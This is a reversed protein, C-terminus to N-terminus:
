SYCRYDFDVDGYFAFHAQPTGNALNGECGKILLPMMRRVQEPNDDALDVEERPDDEINFHGIKDWRIIYRRSSSNPDLWAYIKTTDTFPKLDDWYPAIINSPDDKSNLDNNIYM